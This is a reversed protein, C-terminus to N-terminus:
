PLQVAVAEFITIAAAFDQQQALAKITELDSRLEANPNATLFKTLRPKVQDSVMNYQVQRNSLFSDLDDLFSKAFKWKRREIADWAITFQQQALKALVGGTPKIAAQKKQLLDLRGVLLARHFNNQETSEKALFNEVELLEADATAFDAQEVSRGIAALQDKLYTRLSGGEPGVNNLAENLEQLRVAVLAQQREKLKQEDNLHSELADVLKVATSMDSKKALDRSDEIGRRVEEALVGGIPRLDAYKAQLKELREFLLTRQLALRAANDDLFRDALFNYVKDKGDAEGTTDLNGRQAAAVKALITKADPRSEIWPDMLWNVFESYRTAAGKVGGTKAAVGAHTKEGFGALAAEAAAAAAQDRISSPSQSTYNALEARIVAAAAEAAASVRKPDLSTDASKVVAEFAATAIEEAGNEKVSGAKSVAQKVAAPVGAVLKNLVAADTEFAPRAGKESKLGYNPSAEPNARQEDRRQLIAKASENGWQLHNTKEDSATGESELHDYRFAQGEGAKFATSGVSFVDHRNDHEVYKEGGAVSRPFIDPSVSGKHFPSNPVSKGRGSELAVGFDFVKIEGTTQDIMVNEDRLDNHVIGRDALFASVQLMQLLYFQTAGWFEEHSIDGREYLKQMQATVNKVTNGKVCELILGPKKEVYTTGPHKVDIMATGSCKVINPHDGVHQYMKEEHYLDDVGKATKGFKVVLPPCDPDASPLLSTTGNDGSALEKGVHVKKLDIKDAWAKTAPPLKELQPPKRPLRDDIPTPQESRVIPPATPVRPPSAGTAPGGVYRSSEHAESTDPPTWTSTSPTTPTPNPIPTSSSLASQSANQPMVYRSASQETPLGTEDDAEEREEEDEDDDESSDYDLPSDDDEPANDHSAVNRASYRNGDEEEGELEDESDYEAESDDFEDDLEDTQEFHIAQKIQNVYRQADDQAAAQFFYGRADIPM